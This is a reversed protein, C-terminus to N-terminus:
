KKRKFHLVADVRGKEFPVPEGTDTRIDIEITEFSSRSVPVYHINQFSKRITSGDKGETAIARLMPTSVDGVLRYHLVDSYIYMDRYNGNLDVENPSVTNETIGISDKLLGLMYTLPKKIALV